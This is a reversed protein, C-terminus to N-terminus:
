QARQKPKQICRAFAAPIGCYPCQGGCFFEEAFLASVQTLAARTATLMVSLQQDAASEGFLVRQALVVGGQRAFLSFLPCAGLVSSASAGKFLITSDILAPVTPMNTENLM